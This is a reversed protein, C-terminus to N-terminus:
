NQPRKNFGKMLWCDIFPTYCCIATSIFGLLSSFFHSFLPNLRFLPLVLHPFLSRLAFMGKTEESQKRRVPYSSTMCVGFWKCNCNYRNTKLWNSCCKSRCGAYPVWFLSHGKGITQANDREREGEREITQKEPLGVRDREPWGPEPPFDINHSCSSFILHRQREKSKLLLLRM